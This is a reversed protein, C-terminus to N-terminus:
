PQVTKWWRAPTPTPKPKPESQQKNHHKLQLKPKPNHQHQLQCNEPEGHEIAHEHQSAKVGGGDQTAPKDRAEKRPDLALAAKCVRANALEEATM